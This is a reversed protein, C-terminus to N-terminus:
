PYGSDNIWGNCQESTINDFAAQILPVPDDMAQLIEDHEKLYYKIYSFIEEIPNHDPSYPPLSLVLIGADRFLDTVTQVHHISCNDLIAISRPNQGNFPLMNPILSGHVFDYFREGNFTGTKLGVSVLGTSCIGAVASIRQGRHLLRHYVPCEGRLAYGFHRVHDKAACGTEDIWVFQERSYLQIEAMFMGRYKTFRQKAVQQIKKRTM